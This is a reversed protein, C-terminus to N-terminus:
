RFHVLARSGRIIRFSSSEKYSRRLLIITVVAVSRVITVISLYHSYTLLDDAPALSCAAMRDDDMVQRDAKQKQIRSTGGHESDDVVDETILCKTDSSQRM